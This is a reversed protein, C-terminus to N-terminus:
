NPEGQADEEDFDAAAVYSPGEDNLVWLGVQPLPTWLMRARANRRSWLSRVSHVNTWELADVELEEFGPEPCAM